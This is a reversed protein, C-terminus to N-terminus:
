DKALLHELRPPTKVKVWNEYNGDYGAKEQLARTKVIIGQIVEDPMFKRKEIVEIIKSIDKHVKVATQRHWNEYDEQRWQLYGEMIEESIEKGHKISENINGKGTVANGIAFVNDFGNILCSAPDTIKFVSGEAPIGKIMEPISGISSIVLPSNVDFFENILVVKDHEIKTRQFRLGNLQGEKVLKDSPVCCPEFKFLYKRQFNDLIKQRVTQAKQLKEPTDTGIPSLPM